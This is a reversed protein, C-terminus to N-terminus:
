RVAASDFARTRTHRENLEGLALALRKLQSQHRAVDLFVNTKALDGPLERDDRALGALRRAVTHLRQAIAPLAADLPPRHSIELPLPLGDALRQLVTLM